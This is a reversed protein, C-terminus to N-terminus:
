IIKKIIFSIFYLIIIFLKSHISLFMLLIGDFILVRVGDCIRFVKMKLDACIYMSQEIDKLRQYIAGTFVVKGGFTKNYFYKGYGEQENDVTFDGENLPAVETVGFRDTLEYEYRNKIENM